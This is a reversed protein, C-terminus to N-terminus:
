PLNGGNLVTLPHPSTQPTGFSFNDDGIYGNNAGPYGLAAAAEPSAYYSVKALQVAFEIEPLQTIAYAITDERQSAKLQVFDRRFQDRAYSDMAAALLPVLTQMQSGDEFFKGAAGVDLAGVVGKPDRHKGPMVADVFAAITHSDSTDPAGGLSPLDVPDVPAKAKAPACHHAALAATAASVLELFQRRSMPTKMTM